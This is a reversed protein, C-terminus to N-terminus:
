KEYAHEKEEKFVRKGLGLFGEIARMPIGFTQTLWKYNQPIPLPLEFAIIFDYDPLTGREILNLWTNMSEYAKPRRSEDVTNVLRDLYDVWNFRRRMMWIQASLGPEQIQRFFQTANMWENKKGDISLPSYSFPIVRYFAWPRGDIFAVNKEIQTPIPLM